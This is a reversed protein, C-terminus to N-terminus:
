ASRQLNGPYSNERHNVTVHDDDGVEQPWCTPIPSKKLHGEGLAIIATCNKNQPKNCQLISCTKQNKSHFSSNINSASPASHNRYLSRVTVLIWTQQGRTLLFSLVSSRTSSGQFLSPRTLKKKHLSIDILSCMKKRWILGKLLVLHHCSLYKKNKVGIQPLNGHQSINKLPTSVVLCFIEGVFNTWDRKKKKKVSKRQLWRKTVYKDFSIKKWFVLSVVGWFKTTLGWTAYHLWSSHWPSSRTAM